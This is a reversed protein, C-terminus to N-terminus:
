YGLGVSRGNFVDTDSDISNAASPADLPFSPCNLSKFSVNFLSLYGFYRHPVRLGATELLAPCYKSYKLADKLFPPQWTVGTLVQLHVKVCNLANGYSCHQYSVFQQSLCICDAAPHSFRFFRCLKM